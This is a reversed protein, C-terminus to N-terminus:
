SRRVRALVQEWTLVNDPDSEHAALRRDLEARLDDTLEPQWGGEVLQDWLQFVFDLQDQVPWAQVEQLVTTPDVRAETDPRTMPKVPVLKDFPVTWRFCLLLVGIGGAIAPEHPPAPGRM